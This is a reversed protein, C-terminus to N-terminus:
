LLGLAADAQCPVNSLKEGLGGGRSMQTCATRLPRCVTYTMPIYARPLVTAASTYQSEALSGKHNVFPLHRAHRSMAVGGNCIKGQQQQLM